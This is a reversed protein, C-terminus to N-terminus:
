WVSSALIRPRLPLKSEVKFVGRDFFVGHCAVIRPHDLDLM